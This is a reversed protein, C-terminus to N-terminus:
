QEAGTLSIMRTFMRQAADVGVVTITGLVPICASGVLASLAAGWLVWHFSIAALGFLVMNAASTILMGILGRKIQALQSNDKHEVNSGGFWFAFRGFATLNSDM